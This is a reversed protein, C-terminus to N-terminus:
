QEDAAKYKRGLPPLKAATERAIAYVKGQKKIAFLRLGPAQAASKPAVGAEIAKTVEPALELMARSVEHSAIIRRYNRHSATLMADLVPWIVSLMGERAIKVLIEPLGVYTDM